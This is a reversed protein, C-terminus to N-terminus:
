AAESAVIRKAIWEVTPIAVSNGILRYRASDSLEIEKGDETVGYRTFHDPMGMCRECEILMLRRVGSMMGEMRRSGKNSDLTAHVDGAHVGSQSEKWAISPASSHLTFMPDGPQPNSRNERSTVNREDFAVPVLPTGRGTGDESADFGEARLSHSGQCQFGVLLGERSEHDGYPNGSLAPAVSQVLNM